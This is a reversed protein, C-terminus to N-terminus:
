QKARKDLYERAQELMWEPIDEGPGLLGLLNEDDDIGVVGVDSSGLALMEDTTAGKRGLFYTDDCCGDHSVLAWGVIPWAQTVPDGDHEPAVAYVSRWGNGPVVQKVTLTCEKKRMTGM